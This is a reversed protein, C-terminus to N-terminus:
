PTAKPTAPWAPSITSVPLSGPATTPVAGTAADFFMVLAFQPFNEHGLRCDSSSSSASGGGGGGTSQGKTSSQLAVRTVGDVLRMRTLMQAVNDQDTTCGLVEIAPVPLAGRLAATTGGGSSTLAVGPTVTAKLSTLWVHNPVVRAIEQLSHAWDFRSKALSTVTQERAARLAAFQTYSALETARSETQAARAQVLSLETRKPALSRHQLAYTTAIVVLMALLGLVVYVAGGSRGAAGGAGRREDEPILNVARM